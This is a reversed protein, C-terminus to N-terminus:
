DTVDTDHEALVHFRPTSLKRKYTCQSQTRKCVGRGPTAQVAASTPPRTSQVAADSTPPKVPAPEHAACPGARRLLQLGLVTGIVVFGTYCLLVLFTVHLPWANWEQLFEVYGYDTYIVESIRSSAGDARAASLFATCAALLSRMLGDPAVTTIAGVRKDCKSEAIHSGDYRRINIMRMLMEFRDKALVKTGLDSHNVDGPVKYVYLRRQKALTQLWLVKVDLHRVGGVGIRSIIAKAAKSDLFLRMQKIMFGMWVLMHTVLISPSVGSAAGYTESEGSSQAQISQQKATDYLLCGEAVIHASSTSKRSVKDGAWDTDTFVNVYGKENYFDHARPVEPFWVGVGDSHQLYRALRKLRNYDERTPSKLGHSLEKVAFNLDPRYNRLYRAVSVAHRYNWIEGEDTLPDNEDELTRTKIIPTPSGACDVMKLTKLIDVVYKKNPQIFTGTDFIIRYNKLFSYRDGVGLLKSWKMAIRSTVAEQLRHLGEDPGTAHIDDQHIEVLTHSDRNIYFQPQLLSREFGNEIVIDAYLDGFEVSADREGYLKRRLVAIFDDPNVGKTRIRRKAEEPLEIYVKRNQPTHFYANTADGVLRKYRHKTAYYDLLRGTTPATAVTFLGERHPDLFKFERAVVRCRWEKGRRQKVWRVSLKAYDKYQPDDRPELTYVGFGEMQDLEHEMGEAQLLLDKETEEDPDDEDPDFDDCEDQDSFADEKGMDEDLTGYDEAYSASCAPLRTESDTQAAIAGQVGPLAPIASVDVRRRQADRRAEVEWTQAMNEM